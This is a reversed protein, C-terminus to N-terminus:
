GGDHRIRNMERFLWAKAFAWDNKVTGKSVHLERATEQLTLGGFLHLDLVRRVREHNEQVDLRNLAEDLLALQELLEVGQDSRESPENGTDLAVRDRHGGRKLTKRRRSENVLIHQIIRSAANFFHTRNEWRLGGKQAVALFLENVLATAQLLHDGRERRMSACALDHLQSYVVSFLQNRALDDGSCVAALLATVDEPRTSREEQGCVAQNNEGLMVM